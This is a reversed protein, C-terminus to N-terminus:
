NNEFDNIMNQYLLAMDNLKEKIMSSNLGLVEYSIMAILIFSKVALDLAYEQGENKPSLDVGSFFGSVRNVNGFTNAHLELCARKYSIHLGQILSKYEGSARDIIFKCLDSFTNRGCWWYTSLNKVGYKEKIRRLEEECIQVNRTDNAYEYMTKISKNRQVEYDDYFKEVMKQKQDSDYEEFCMIIVFQEFLNRALGLAGDPMGNKCLLIIERFVLMSKGLCNIVVNFYTIGTKYNGNNIKESIEDEIIDICEELESIHYKNIIDTQTM